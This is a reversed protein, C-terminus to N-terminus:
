RTGARQPRSVYLLGQIGGLLLPSATEKREKKREKGTIVDGSPLAAHFCSPIREPFSGKEKAAGPSKTGIGQISSKKLKTGPVDFVRSMSACSEAVWQVLPTQLCGPTAQGVGAQRWLCLPEGKPHLLACGCLSVAGNLREAHSDRLRTGLSQCQEWSLCCQSSGGGHWCEGRHLPCSPNFTM